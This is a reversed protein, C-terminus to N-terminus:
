KCADLVEQPVRLGLEIARMVDAMANHKQHLGIYAIGRRYYAEALHPNLDIAKSFDLVAGQHDNLFGKAVARLNYAEALDPKLAIAKTSDVIAGPFEQLLLKETALDLWYAFSNNTQDEEGLSQYQKFIELLLYRTKGLYEAIDFGIAMNAKLDLRDGTLTFSFRQSLHYLLGGPEPGIDNIDGFAMGGKSNFDEESRVEANRSLFYEESLLKSSYQMRFETIAERYIESLVNKSRNEDDANQCLIRIFHYSAWFCDTIIAINYNQPLSKSGIISRYFETDIRNLIIASLNQCTGLWISKLDQHLRSLAM